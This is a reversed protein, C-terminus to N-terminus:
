GAASGPRAQGTRGCTGILRILSRRIGLENAPKTTEDYVNQAMASLARYSDGRSTAALHCSLRGVESWDLRAAAAVVTDIQDSLSEVSQRVRAQNAALRAAAQHVDPYNPEHSM